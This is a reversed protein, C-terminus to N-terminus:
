SKAKRNNRMHKLKEKLKEKSSLEESTNKEAKTLNEFLKMKDYQSLKKIKEVMESLQSPDFMEDLNKPQKTIEEDLKDSDSDSM